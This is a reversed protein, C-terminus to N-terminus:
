LHASELAQRAVDDPVHMKGGGRVTPVYGGAPGDMIAQARDALARQEQVSLYGKIWTAGDGLSRRAGIEGTANQFPL